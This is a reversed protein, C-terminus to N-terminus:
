APNHSISAALEHAETEITRAVALAHQTEFNALDLVRGMKANAENSAGASVIAEGVIDRMTQLMVPTIPANNAAAHEFDAILQKARDPLSVPEDAM